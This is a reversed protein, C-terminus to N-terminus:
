GQSHKNRIASKISARVQVYGNKGGPVSGRVLILGKEPLVKAVKLNQTTVTENGMQGPMRKGPIVRGPTLRCGISGGHRYVEHQGHTRKEGRMGHRKMVGQYGKGKSTGTVDVMAGAEFIDVPIESGVEYKSATEADVRFEKLKRRPAVDAKKFQGLKPKSLRSPKQEDFALQLATYGDRAETRQATVVNGKALLVTVPVRTGDEEYFETMGLKKALLGMQRNM